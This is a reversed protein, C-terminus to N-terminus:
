QAISPRVFRGRRIFSICALSVGFQRALETVLGPRDPQEYIWVREAPTFVRRKPVSLLGRESADRMNELQTGLYLHDLRVCIGNDCHHNIQRDAPIPGYALEWAVRHVFVPRNGYRRRWSIGGYMQRLGLRYGTWEHCRGLGPYKEPGYPNVNTYLRDHITSPRTWQRAQRPPELSALHERTPRPPPFSSPQRELAYGMPSPVLVNMIRSETNQATEVTAHKQM